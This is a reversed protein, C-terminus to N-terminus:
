EDEDEPPAWLAHRDVLLRAHTELLGVRATEEATRAEIAQRRALLLEGIGLEGLAYGREALDANREALAAAAQLSDWSDRAANALTALEYASQVVRVRTARLREDAMDAEALAASVRATRAPGGIPMSVSVGVIREIGGRERGAHVGVTPDPLLEARERDAMLRARAADIEALRIEHNDALVAEIYRDIDVPDYSPEPLSPVPEAPAAIGYRRAFEARAVAAKAQAARVASRAQAAESEALGQEIRPADGAAVRKRIVAVARERQAAQEAARAAARSERLVAFWGAVLGRAGEHWADSYGNRALRVGAAGLKRDQEVKGSWRFGREIALEQERYRPGGSEERRQQVVARATWEYPGAALRDREASQYDIHRLREKVEPLAAIAREATESPPLVRALDPPLAPAHDHLAPDSPDRADAPQGSADASLGAGAQAIAAPPLRLDLAPASASARGAPDAGAAVASAM